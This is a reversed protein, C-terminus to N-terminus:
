EEDTNVEIEGAASVSVGVSRHDVDRVLELNFPTIEGSSLILVHPLYDQSSGTDNAPVTEAAEVDLLVSKDELYLEIETDEKLSRPRLLDDGLVEHWQDTLPDHEVFRYGGRLLELGFDRGELMAEDSVTQILSTMRRAETQLERDDRLNGLGLMVIASVIGIIVVVVLVEILTFGSDRGRM